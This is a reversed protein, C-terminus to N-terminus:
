ADVVTLGRTEVQDQQEAHRMQSIRCGKCELHSIDTSYSMSKWIWITMLFTDTNLM